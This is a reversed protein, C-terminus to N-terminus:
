PRARHIIPSHRYWWAHHKQTEALEGAGVPDEGEFWQASVLTAIPPARLHPHLPDVTRDEGRPGLSGDEVVHPLVGRRLRGEEVLRQIEGFAQDGARVGASDIEAVRAPAGAVQQRRRGGRCSPGVCGCTSAERGPPVVLWVVM